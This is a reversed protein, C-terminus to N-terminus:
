VSVRNGIEIVEPSIIKGEAISFRILTKKQHFGHKGAAGPNMHVLQYHKDYMVKLIHSHGCIFLGPKESEIMKRIREPYKGPYGGIHTMYVKLGECEFVQNLPFMRRLKADDINGYVARLPKQSSIQDALEVSGIDGAHWIEDAQLIYKEIKPDLYGHTDSLLM